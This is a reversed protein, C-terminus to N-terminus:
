VLLQPIAFVQNGKIRRSDTENLAIPECAACLPAVKKTSKFGATSCSKVGTSKVLLVLGGGDNITYDKDKFKAARYVVDKNLEKAM